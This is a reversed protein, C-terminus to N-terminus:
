HSLTVVNKPKLNKWSYDEWLGESLLLLTMKFNQFYESINALWSASGTDHPCRWRRHWRHRHCRHDCREPSKRQYWHCIQWRHSGTGYNLNVSGCIRILFLYKFPCYRSITKLSLGDWITYVSPIQFIKFNKNNTVSIHSTKVWQAGYSFAGLTDLRMKRCHKTENWTM